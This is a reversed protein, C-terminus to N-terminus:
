QQQHQDDSETESDAEADTIFPETRGHALDAAREVSGAAYHIAAALENDPVAASVGHERRVARVDPGSLVSGDSLDSVSTEM